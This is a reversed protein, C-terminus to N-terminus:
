QEEFSHPANTAECRVGLSISVSLWLSHLKAYDDPHVFTCPAHFGHTRIDTTREICVCRYTHVDDTSVISNRHM